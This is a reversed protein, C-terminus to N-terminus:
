WLLRLWRRRPSCLMFGAVTRNDMSHFVFIGLTVLQMLHEECIVVLSHSFCLFARFELGCGCDGFRPFIALAAVARQVSWCGGFFDRWILLSSSLVVQNSIRNEGPPRRVLSGPNLRPNCSFYALAEFWWGMWDLNSSFWFPSLSRCPLLSLRLLFTLSLTSAPRSNWTDRTSVWSSCCIKVVSM